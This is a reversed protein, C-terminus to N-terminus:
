ARRARRNIERGSRAGNIGWWYRLGKADGASAALPADCAMSYATSIAALQFGSRIYPNDLRDGRRLALGALVALRELDLLSEGSVHAHAAFGMNRIHGALCVAIEAARFAAIDAEAGGVWARALNGEEPQRPEAVLIVVAFGHAQPEIGEIWANAPLRCIGMQDADMFYGGGKVDTARLDLDDPVPATAPAVDGSASAAFIDTYKRLAESLSGAVAPSRPAPVPRQPREAEPGELASDRPLVELPYSGLHFPRNRNRPYFFM